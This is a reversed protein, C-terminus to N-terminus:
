KGGGHTKLILVTNTSPKSPGYVRLGIRASDRVTVERDVVSYDRGPQPANDPFSVPATLWAAKFEDLPLSWLNTFMEDVEVKLPAFGPDAEALQGYRPGPNALAPGSSGLQVM